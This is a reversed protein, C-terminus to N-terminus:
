IVIKKCHNFKFKYYMKITITDKHKASIFCQRSVGPTTYDWHLYWTNSLFTKRHLWLIRNDKVKWTTFHSHLHVFKLSNNVITM